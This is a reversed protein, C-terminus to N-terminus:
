SSCTQVVYDRKNRMIAFIVYTLKRAVAGIATLHHKGESRKKQYYAKLVPDYRAANVAAMWISRRLYPSGRKSMRNHTANFEGSQRVTPDIGVFAVLKAPSDFRSIDGIESEISAALVSGIGPISTLHSDCQEFYLSIKEEVEQIHDEIFKIQEIIQRLQFSFADTAIKIGFTNKAADLLEEAKARHLTGHSTKRLFEALDDTSVTLIEEPSSYNLLLEKSSVGFTDAFLSEYEPFIQDLITIAKVKLESVQDVLYGRYRCLQKMAVTTEDALQTSSFRNFRIVEAIIFSDKSDNKTKRIYLNRLSDSQIPNIVHVTFGKEILFCYLSLWYHGTAEMGFVVADNETNNVAVHKLLKEGGDSTNTFRISQGPIKGEQNIVVAEHNNKAVDIGVILM